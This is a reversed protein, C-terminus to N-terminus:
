ETFDEIQMFEDDPEHEEDPNRWETIKAEVVVIREGEPTKKTINQRKVRTIKEEIPISADRFSKVDTFIARQKDKSEYFRVALPQHGKSGPNIPGFTVKWDAPITLKRQSGNDLELIYEKTEEIDKKRAAM